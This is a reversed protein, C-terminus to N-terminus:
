SQSNKIFIKTEVPTYDRNIIVAKIEEFKLLGKRSLLFNLLFIKFEVILKKLSLLIMKVSM